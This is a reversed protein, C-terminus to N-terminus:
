RMRRLLPRCPQLPRVQLRDPTPTYAYSPVEDALDAPVTTEAGAPPSLGPTHTTGDHSIVSAGTVLTSVTAAAALRAPSSSTIRGVLWAAPVALLHLHTRDKRDRARQLIHEAEYM